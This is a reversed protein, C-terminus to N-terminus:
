SSVLNPPVAGFGFCKQGGWISWEYPNPVSPKFLCKLSSSYLLAKSSFGKNVLLGSIIVHGSYFVLSKLHSTAIGISSGTGALGTGNCYCSDQLV